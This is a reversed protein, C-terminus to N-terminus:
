TLRSCGPEELMGNADAEEIASPYVTIVRTVIPPGPKKMALPREAEGNVELGRSRARPIRTWYAEAGAQEAASHRRRPVVEPVM